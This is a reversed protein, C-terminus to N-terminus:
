WIGLWKWEVIVMVRVIAVEVIVMVRVIRGNGGVIIMVRVM